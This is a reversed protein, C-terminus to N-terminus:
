KQDNKELTDNTANSYNKIQHKSNTNCNKKQEPARDLRRVQPVEEEFCAVDLLVRAGKRTSMAVFVDAPLVVGNQASVALFIEVSDADAHRYLFYSCM